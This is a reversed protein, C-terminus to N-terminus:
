LVELLGMAEAEAVNPRGVFRRAYAQVFQGQEDHMCAGVSYVNHEMYCATDINCKLM